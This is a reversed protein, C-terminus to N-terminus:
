LYGLGDPGQVMREVRRSISVATLAAPPICVDPIYLVDGGDLEVRHQELGPSSVPKFPKDALAEDQLDVVDPVPSIAKAAQKGRARTRRSGDEQAEVAIKDERKRKSTM